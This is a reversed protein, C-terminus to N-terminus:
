ESTRRCADSVLRKLIIGTLMPQVDRANLGIPHHFLAQPAESPRLRRSPAAIEPQRRAIAELIKM